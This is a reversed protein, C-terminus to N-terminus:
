GKLFFIRRFFYGAARCVDSSIIDWCRRYLIGGFGDPGPSSQASLGFVVRCVKEESPDAVLLDNQGQTVVYSIFNDLITFDMPTPGINDSFAALFILLILVLLVLTM